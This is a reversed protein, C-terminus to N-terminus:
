PTTTSSNSLNFTLTGWKFLFFKYLLSFVGHNLALFNLTWEVLSGVLKLVTNVRWMVFVFFMSLKQQWKMKKYKELTAEIKTPQGHRLLSALASGSHQKSLKPQAAMYEPM